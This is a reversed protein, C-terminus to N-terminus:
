DGAEAAVAERKPLRGATLQVSEIARRRIIAVNLRSSPFPHVSSHITVDTLGVFAPLMSGDELLILPNGRSTLHIVGSLIHGPLVVMAGYQEKEQYKDARRLPAEHGGKPIVMLVQDKKLHLQKWRVSPSADGAARTVTEQMKLIDVTNDNLVDAV